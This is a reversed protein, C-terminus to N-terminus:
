RAIPNTVLPHEYGQRTMILEAPTGQQPCAIRSTVDASIKPEPNPV